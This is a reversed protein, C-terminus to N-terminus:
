PNGELQRIRAKAAALEQELKSLKALQEQTTLDPDFLMMELEKKEMAWQAREKQLQMGLKKNQREAENYLMTAQELNWNESSISLREQEGERLATSLEDNLAVNEAQLNSIKEQLAAVEALQANRNRLTVQDALPTLDAEIKKTETYTKVLPEKEPPAAPIEAVDVAAELPPEVVAKKEPEVPTIDKPETVEIIIEAKEQDETNIPSEVEVPSPLVVSDKNEEIPANNTEDANQKAPNKFEEVAALDPNSELQAALQQSLRQHSKGVEDPMTAVPMNGNQNDQVSAQDAIPQQVDKQTVEIIEPQPVPPAIEEIGVMNTEKVEMAMAENVEFESAASNKDQMKPPMKLGPKEDTVVPESPPPPPSVEAVKPEVPKGGNAMCKEFQMAATTFGTMYFRFANGEVDLDVVASDRAAKYLEKHTKVPISLINQKLGKAQVAIAERGPVSVKVDYIKGTEFVNQRFNINLAQVWNSGGEFQLLFGNNFENQVVCEAALPSANAAGVEWAKIPKFQAEPENAYASFAFVMSVASVLLSSYFSPQVVM